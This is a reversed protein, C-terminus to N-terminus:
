DGLLLRTHMDYGRGRTNCKRAAGNADAHEGSQLINAAVNPHGRNSVQDVALPLIRKRRGPIGRVYRCGRSQYNSITVVDSDRPVFHKACAALEFTSAFLAVAEVGPATMARHRPGTAAFIVAEHASWAGGLFQTHGCADHNLVILRFPASAPTVDRGDVVVDDQVAVV